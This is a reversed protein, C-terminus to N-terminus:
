KVMALRSPIFLLGPNAYAAAAFDGVDAFWGPNLTGEKLLKLATIMFMPEDPDYLSPLGFGVNILRWALAVVLIFGLAANAATRETM